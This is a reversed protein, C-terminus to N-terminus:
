ENDLPVAFMEVASSLVSSPSSDPPREIEAMAMISFLLMRAKTPLPALKERLLTTMQSWARLRVSAVKVKGAGTSM